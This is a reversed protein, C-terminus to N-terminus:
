YYLCLVVSSAGVLVRCSLCSVNVLGFMCSADIVYVLVFGDVVVRVCSRMCLCVCCRVFLCRGRCVAVFVCWMCVCCVVGPVSLCSRLGVCVCGYVQVVYRVFM